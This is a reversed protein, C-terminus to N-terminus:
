ASSSPNRAFLYSLGGGLGMSILIVISSGLWQTITVVSFLTNIFSVLWVAIAVKFLHKFRDVKVLAGSICFGVISLLINSLGVALLAGQSRAADGLTIGVILGGVFTLALVIVTDRVLAKV